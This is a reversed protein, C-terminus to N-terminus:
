VQRILETRAERLVPHDMVPSITALIQAKRSTKTKKLVAVDEHISATDVKKTWRLFVKRHLWFMSFREGFEEAPINEVTGTLSTCSNKRRGDSSLTITMDISSLLACYQFALLSFLVKTLSQM